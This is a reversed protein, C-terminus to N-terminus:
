FEERERMMEKLVDLCDTITSMQMEIDLMEDEYHAYVYRWYDFLERNVGMLANEAKRIAKMQENLDYKSLLDKM